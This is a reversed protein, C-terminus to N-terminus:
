WRLYERAIFDECEQMADWFKFNVAAPTEDFCMSVCRSFLNGNDAVVTIVIDSKDDRFSLGVNTIAHRRAIEARILLVPDGNGCFGLPTAICKILNYRKCLDDDM